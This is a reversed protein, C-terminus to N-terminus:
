SQLPVVVFIPDRQKWDVPLDVVLTVPEANVLEVLADFQDFMGDVIFGVPDPRLFTRDFREVGLLFDEEDFGDLLVLFLRGFCNIFRVILHINPFWGGMVLVDFAFVVLIFILILFIVWLVPTQDRVLNVCWCRMQKPQIHPSPPNLREKSIRALVEAETVALHTVFSTGLPM